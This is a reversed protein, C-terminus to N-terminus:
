TERRMLQTPLIIQRPAIKNSNEMQEILVNVVTHGMENIPQNITTLAPSIISSTSIDDFGVISIDHPVSVNKEKLGKLAGYAILDNACFIATFKQKNNLLEIVAHYGIEIFNSEKRATYIIDEQIPLNNTMLCNRYGLERSKSVRDTGLFAIRKHGKSILYEVGDIAGGLHDVDVSIINTLNQCQLGVMAKDNERFYSLMGKVTEDVGDILPGFIIGDVNREEFLELVSILKQKEKNHSALLLAYGKNWLANQIVEALEPWYSALDPLIFGIMKTKKQKMSRANYNPKFNLEEIVQLVKNRTSSKVKDQGNIVRSVTAISVNAKRAVDKITKKVIM